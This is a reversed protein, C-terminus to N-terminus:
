QWLRRAGIYPKHGTCVIESADCKWREAAEQKAEAEWRGKVSITEGNPGKLEYWRLM